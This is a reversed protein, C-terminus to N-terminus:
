RIEVPTNFAAIRGTVVEQVVQRLRYNGPPAQLTVGASAGSSNLKALTEDKLNMEMVVEVGSLFKNERDFLATIFILREVHRDNEKKFPLGRTDVHIAVKLAPEGTALAVSKTDVGAQIGKLEDSTMVEENLKAFREGPALSSKSPAFYGPRAEISYGKNNAVKVKLSHYAGDSKLDEPIFGLSYSVDPLAAMQRVGGVLDNDNHFFTGGTGEALLAMSDDSVDREDSAVQDMYAQLSGRDNGFVGGTGQAALAMPPGDAPNGGLWEPSLGKADLSNIRISAQLADDILKDQKKKVMNSMSFYGSSSMVLMRRGPMKAVYRIIDDLVGLTEMAFNDANSLVTQAQTEVLRVQSSICLDYTPDSPSQCNCDIAEAVALDHAPSHTSEAQTIQWAQYADMRPCATAGYSVSRYHSVVQNIAAVLKQRDNTFGLSVSTSSTFVAAKDAPELHDNIFKQAARRVVVLDNTQMNNDDFFFGIYRAPPAPPPAPPPVAPNLVAPAPIPAPKAEEVSFHSVQQQKGSDFIQFDEKKLGAVPKGNEDRVVVGLEVMNTQVTIAHAEQPTYPQGAVRIEDNSVSQGHIMAAALVATFLVVPIQIRKV